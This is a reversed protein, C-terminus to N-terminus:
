HRIEGRQSGSANRRAALLDGAGINAAFMINAAFTHAATTLDDYADRRNEIRAARRQKSSCIENELAREFGGSAARSHRRRRLPEGTAQVLEKLM